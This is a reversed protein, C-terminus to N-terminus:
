KDKEKEKEKKLHVPKDKDLNVPDSSSSCGPILFAALACLLLM